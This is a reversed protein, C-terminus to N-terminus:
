PSFSPGCRDRMRGMGQDDPRLRLAERILPAAEECRGANGLLWAPAAWGRFDDPHAARHAAYSAVADDVRGGRDHLLAIQLDLDQARSGAARAETLRQLAETDARRASLALGLAYLLAADGPRRELGERAAREVADRDGRRTAVAAALRWGAPDTPALAQMRAATAAADDLRALALQLAGRETHLGVSEPLGPTDLQALAGAADGAAALAVALGTRARWLRPYRTLLEEYATRARAPDTEAEARLLAVVADMDGEPLEGAGALYGLAELRPDAGSPATVPADACGFAAARAALGTAGPATADPATADPGPRLEGPDAIWDVVTGMGGASTGVAAGTTGAASAAATQTGTWRRRGDVLACRPAWGFAVAPYWTEAYAVRPTEPAGAALAALSRGDAAEFPVGAYAALTPAIDVGSVVAEVVRAARPADPVADLVLTADLDAPRRVDLPGGARPEAPETSATLPTPPRVLLPVRLAARSALLGHDREGHEWLSEGHDATVVLATPRAPAVGPGLGLGALLAGVQADAAAVEARYPDGEAAPWPRHPDYLHVWAFRPAPTAAWWARAAAITEASPREAAGGSASGDSAPAAYTGFGQAIGTAPDLVSASVFAGTSWGAAALAEAITRVEDAVRYGANDRAGHGKPYRGTLMSAHSPLTTPAAALVERFLAGEAALADLTPTHALPDGYAGVRDARLTDVTVLLLDPRDAAPLSSAPTTGAPVVPADPATCAALALAALLSGRLSGSGARRRSPVRRAPAPFDSSGVM